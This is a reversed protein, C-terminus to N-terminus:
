HFGTELLVSGSTDQYLFQLVSPVQQWVERAHCLGVKGESDSHM